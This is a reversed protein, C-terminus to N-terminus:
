NQTNIELEKDSSSLRYSKKFTDKQIIIRNEFDPDFEYFCKMNLLIAESRSFDGKARMKVIFLDNDRIASQLAFGLLDDDISVFTNEQIYRFLCFATASQYNDCKKELDFHDLVETEIRFELNIADPEIQFNFISMHGGHFPISMSFLGILLSQVIM